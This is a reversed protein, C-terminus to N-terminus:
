VYTYIYIYIHLRPPFCMKEATQQMHHKYGSPKLPPNNSDIRVHKSLALNSATMVTCDVVCFLLAMKLATARSFWGGPTRRPRVRTRPSRASRRSRARVYIYIYIYINRTDEWSDHAPPGGALRAALAAFGSPAQGSAEM